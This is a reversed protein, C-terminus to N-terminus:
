PLLLKLEEGYLLSVQILVWLFLRAQILSLYLPDDPPTKWTIKSHGMKEMEQAYTPAFGELRRIIQSKEDYGAKESLLVTSVILLGWLGWAWFPMGQFSGGRFRVWHALGM